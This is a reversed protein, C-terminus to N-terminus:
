KTFTLKNLRPIHRWTKNCKIASITSKAVNYKLALEKQPLNVNIIEIVQKETLKSLGQREGNAHGVPDIRNFNDIYKWSVGYKISRITNEQVNYKISLEKFSLSDERLIEIVQDKNLKSFIVRDGWNNRKRNNRDNINERQTGLILHDINICLPNDCIHRIVLKDPIPGNLQEYLYRGVQITKDHSRIRAYGDKSIYHSTCIYCGNENVYYEIPKKSRPM